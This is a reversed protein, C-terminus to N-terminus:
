PYIQFAMVRWLTCTKGSVSPCISLPGLILSFYMLLKTSVPNEIDVVSAAM